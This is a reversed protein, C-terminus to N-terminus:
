GEGDPVTLRKGAKRIAADVVGYMKRQAVEEDAGLGLLATALRLAATEFVEYPGIVSESM